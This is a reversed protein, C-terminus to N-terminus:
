CIKFIGSNNWWRVKDVKVLKIHNKLVLLVRCHAGFLYVFHQLQNDDILMVSVM